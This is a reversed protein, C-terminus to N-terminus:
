VSHDAIPMMMDDMQGDRLGDTQSATCQPEIPDTYLALLQVLMNRALLNSNTRNLSYKEQLLRGWCCTVDVGEIDTETTAKLSERVKEAVNTTGACHCNDNESV